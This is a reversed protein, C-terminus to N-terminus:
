LEMMTRTVLMRAHARQAVLSCPLWCTSRMPLTSVAMWTRTVADSNRSRPHAEVSSVLTDPPLIM